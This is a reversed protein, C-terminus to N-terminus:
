YAGGKRPAQAQDALFPYRAKLAEWGPTGPPNAVVEARIADFNFPGMQSQFRGMIDNLIAATGPDTGFSATPAMPDPPTARAQLAALTAAAQAQQAKEMELQHARDAARQEAAARYQSVTDAAQQRYLPIAEAAQQFYNGQVQAQAANEQGIMDETGRALGVYPDLAAGARSQLLAALKTRQVDNGAPNFVQASAAAQGQTDSRAAETQQRRAVAQELGRRGFQALVNLADMRQKNVSDEAGEFQDAPADAM